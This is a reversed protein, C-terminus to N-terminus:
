RKIVKRVSGDAMRVINLGNKMESQRVGDLSYITGLSSSSGLEGVASGTSDQDIIYTLFYAGSTEDYFDDAYFAYGLIKSGDASMATPVSYGIMDSFGFMEEYEPFADVLLEAQTAGAKMVFCGISSKIAARGIIGVFSGDDAISSGLLGVGADDIAQPEDYLKLEGTATNYVAPFKLLDEYGEEDTDLRIASCLVYMGNNSIACPSLNALPKESLESEDFACYRRFLADPEYSGDANRVWMIIPGFSGAHGIIYKGDGSIGKASSGDTFEGLQEAPPMPLKSWEGGNVSYAAESVYGKFILSGVKVSGDNTLDEGLVYKCNEVPVPLETMEGNWSYTVGMDGMYGISLGNCDINRLETDSFYEFNGIGTQLDLAFGGEGFDVAGCVFRGDPSIGLGCLQPEEIGPAGLGLTLIKLQEAGLSLALAFSLSCTFLKKMLTLKLFM